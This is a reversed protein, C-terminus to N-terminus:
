VQMERIESFLPSGSIGYGNSKKLLYGYCTSNPPCYEAVSSLGAECVLRAMSERTFNSPHDIHFANTFGERRAVLLWDCHDLYMLDTDSMEDAIRKLTVLPELIHDITRCMLILSHPISKIRVEEVTSALVKFGRARARELEEDCPDVVTVKCGHKNGAVHEAVVGTSGGIDLVSDALVGNDALFKALAFGYHWQNRETDVEGRYQAVLRRYEGDYFETYDKQTPRPNLYIFDCSLCLSFCAEYGYRDKHAIRSTYTGGCVPCNPVVETMTM